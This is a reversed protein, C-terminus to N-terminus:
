QATVLTATDTRVYYLSSGSQLYAGGDSTITLAHVFGVSGPLQTGTDRQPKAGTKAANSDCALPLSAALLLVTLRKM